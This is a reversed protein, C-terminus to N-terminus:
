WVHPLWSLYLKPPQDTSNDQAQDTETFSLWQQRKLRNEKIFEIAQNLDSDQTSSRLPLAELLKFLVPRHNRYFPLLFPFYNNGTHALHAECDELIQQPHDGIVQEMAKFRLAEEGESQFAVVLEHLTNILEDTKAQTKKRYEELAIQGKYHLQRIRKIFFEAIDDLTQAYQMSLLVIALTYRKQAKLELMRAADLTMAEAAFHQMKVLPIQNNYSKRM